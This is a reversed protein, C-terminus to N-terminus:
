AAIKKEIGLHKQIARVEARIEDIEKTVGTSNAYHQEITDLRKEIQNLQERAPKIELAVGDVAAVLFNTRTLATPDADHLKALRENLLAWERRYAGETFLRQDSIRLM